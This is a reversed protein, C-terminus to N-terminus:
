KGFLPIILSEKLSQLTIAKITATILECLMTAIKHCISPKVALSVAASAAIIGVNSVIYKGLWEPLAANMADLMM